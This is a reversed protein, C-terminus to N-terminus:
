HPWIAELKVTTSLFIEEMGLPVEAGLKGQPSVNQM